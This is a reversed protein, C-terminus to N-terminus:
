ARAGVALESDASAPPLRAAVNRLLTTVHRSSDNVENTVQVPAPLLVRSKKKCLLFAYDKTSGPTIYECYPGIEVSQCVCEQSVGESQIKKVTFGLMNAGTKCEKLTLAIGYSECWSSDQPAIVFHTDNDPAVGNTPKTPM